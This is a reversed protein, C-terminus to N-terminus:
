GEQAQRRSGWCNLWNAKEWEQRALWSRKARLYLPDASPQPQQTDNMIPPVHGVRGEMYLYGTFFSFTRLYIECYKRVNKCCCKWAAQRM